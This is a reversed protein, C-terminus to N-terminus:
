HMFFLAKRGQRTGTCGAPQTLPSHVSAQFLQGVVQPSAVPNTRDVAEQLLDSVPCWLRLLARPKGSVGVEDRHEEHRQSFAASFEASPEHVRRGSHPTATVPRRCAPNLTMLITGHVSVEPVTCSMTIPNVHGTKLHFAAAHFERPPPQQQPWSGAM